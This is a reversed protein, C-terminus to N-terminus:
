QLRSIGTSIRFLMWPSDVFSTLSAQPHPRPSNVCSPSYATRKLEQNLAFALQSLSLGKGPYTQTDVPIAFSTPSFASDQADGKMQPLSQALSHLRNTSLTWQREPSTYSKPDLQRMCVALAYWYTWEEHTVITHFSCFYM